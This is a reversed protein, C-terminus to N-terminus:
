PSAHAPSEVLCPPTHDIEARMGARTRWARYPFGVPTHVTIKVLHCIGCERETEECGSPTESAFVTHPLGWRHKLAMPAPIITAETM